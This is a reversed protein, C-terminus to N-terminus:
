ASGEANEALATPRVGIAVTKDVEAPMASSGVVRSVADDAGVVAWIGACDRASTHTGLSGTQGATNGLLM